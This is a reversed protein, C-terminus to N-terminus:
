STFGLPADGRGAKSVAMAVQLKTPNGSLHSALSWEAAGPFSDVLGQQVLLLWVLNYTKRKCNRCLPWGDYAVLGAPM